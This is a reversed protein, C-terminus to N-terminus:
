LSSALLSLSGQHMDEVFELFDGRAEARRQYADPVKVTDVTGMAAHEPLDNLPRPLLTGLRHRHGELGV